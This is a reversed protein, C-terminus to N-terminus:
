DRTNTELDLSSEEGIEYEGLTISDKLLRHDQRKSLIADAKTGSCVAVLKKFDGITTSSSCLIEYRTGLRDNVSVHILTGTAVKKRM